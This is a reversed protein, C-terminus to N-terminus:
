PKGRAALLRSRAPEAGLDLRAAGDAVRLFAQGPRLLDARTTGNEEAIRDLITALGSMDDDALLALHDPGLTTRLDAAWGSPESTLGALDLLVRGAVPQRPADECASRLRALGHRALIREVVFMGVAYDLVDDRRGTRHGEFLDLPTDFLATVDATRSRGSLVTAVATHGTPPKCALEIAVGPTFRALALHRRRWGPSPAAQAALADAWGELALPPLSDWPADTIVHVLEHVLVAETELSERHLLITGDELTAGSLRAAARGDFPMKDVAWVDVSREFSLGLRQEVWPAWHDLQDALRQAEESTPARVAGRTGRCAHAPPEVTTVATQAWWASLVASAVFAVIPLM